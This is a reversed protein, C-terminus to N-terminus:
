TNTVSLRAEAERDLMLWACGGPQKRAITRETERGGRARRLGRRNPGSTSDLRSGFISSRIARRKKPFLFRLLNTRKVFRFACAVYGCNACPSKTKYFAGLSEFGKM